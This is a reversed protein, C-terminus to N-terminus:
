RAIQTPLEPFRMRLEELATAADELDWAAMSVIYRAIWYDPVRHRGIAGRKLAEGAADLEGRLAYYVALHSAVAPAGSQRAYAATIDDSLAEVEGVGYIADALRGPISAENPGAIGRGRAALALVLAGDTGDEVMMPPAPKDLAQRSAGYVFRAPGMMDTGVAEGAGLAYPAVLALRAATEATQHEDMAGLAIARAVGLTRDRQTGQQRRLAEQLAIVDDFRTQAILALGLFGWAERCSDQQPRPAGEPRPEALSRYAEREEASMSLWGDWLRGSRELPDRVLRYVFDQKQLIGSTRMRRIGLRMHIECQDSVARSAALTARVAGDPDGNAWLADALALHAAAAVPDRLVRSGDEDSGAASFGIRPGTQPTEAGAEATESWLAHRLKAEALRVPGPDHWKPEAVPGIAVQSRDAAIALDFGYLVDYGLGGVFDPAPDGLSADVEPRISVESAVLTVARAEHTLKTRPWDTRLWVRQARTDVSASIAVSLGNGRRREGHERWVSTDQRTTSVPAGVAELLSAAAAGSAFRVVGESPLIAVGLGPLASVGLVLSEGEVVEARVRRLSLGGVEFDPLVTRRRKGEGRVQLGLADALDEGVRTWEGGLDVIALTAAPADPFSVAVMPRHGGWVDRYLPVEVPEPLSVEPSQLVWGSGAVADAQALLGLFVMKM